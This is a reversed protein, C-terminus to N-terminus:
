LKRKKVLAKYEKQIKKYIPTGKKIPQFEEKKKKSRAEMVKKTADSWAKAFPNLGKSQKISVIRGDSTIKLDKKRLGGSTEDATGHFVQAKSGITTM